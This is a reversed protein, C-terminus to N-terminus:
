AIALVRALLAGAGLALGLTAASMTIAARRGFEGALAALTAACPISVCTVVAFVFLQAPSLFAGPQAASAGYQVIALAVLLQLALEKRLFAFAIAVGAIAPLGLLGTTIPEISTALEAWLGSEYVMGVVFSGVVMIPTAVIVFSRFRRWAKRAVNAPVPMRLPALELVLAPQRGPIVANAALGAGLTVALVIGFAAFAAGIGAVPALAAIVVASRASCPTLTVLFGGLLRERRTPLVRTGYIAPVNCGAASLLPIAARGPLGLVNFVRDLLVAASTLYGSDELAALVVYFVLVYPIGVSVMALLGGDLAWLLASALAPLPVLASVVTTLVPSVAAAWVEGLLASLWGGVYVMAAFSAIAVGVFLPLGPWPATALRTLTERRPPRIARRREIREVWAAAVRWRDAELEDAVSISAAGRPSIVRDALFPELGSADISAAGLSHSAALDGAVSTLRAEVSPPYPSAPVTARPAGHGDQVARRRAGLRAADALVAPIGAGTRGVTRHVAALLLQSLAELDTEIGAEDAEDSLNAAVVVPLGLDRCALALPLHRALDGADAVVVIADPRTALLQSWFPESGAPTDVLSRTGPLDVLEVRQEGIELPIREAAVTTGPANVAEVYRGSARSVFTSKGVNPRGVLAIALPRDAAGSPHAASPRHGPHLAIL